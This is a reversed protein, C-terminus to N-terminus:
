QSRHIFPIFHIKKVKIWRFLESFYYVFLGIILPEAPFKFRNADGLTFFLFNIGWFSFVVFFMTMLTIDPKFKTKVTNLLFFFFAIFVFVSIIFFILKYVIFIIAPLINLNINGYELPLAGGSSDRFSYLLSYFRYKRFFHRNQEAIEKFFDALKSTIESESASDALNYYARLAPCALGFISYGSYLGTLINRKDLFALSGKMVIKKRTLFEERAKLFIELVPKNKESVTNEPRISAITINRPNQPIGVEANPFLNYFGNHQYNYLCWLNIILAYSFIFVGMSYIWKKLSAKQRFLIYGLLVFFTVIMPIANFRALSLLGIAAGLTFIRVLGGRDFVRFLLSVSLILLFVTLIETLLINAYYITSFSLNFLLAVIMALEKRKFLRRFLLYVLWATIAVLMYQFIIMVKHLVPAKFFLMFFAMIISYLPSRHAYSEYSEEGLLTKSLGIYSSADGLNTVPTAYFALVLNLIVLIMIFSTNSINPKNM